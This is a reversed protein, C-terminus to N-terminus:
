HAPAFDKERGTISEASFGDKPITKVGYYSLKKGDFLAIGM